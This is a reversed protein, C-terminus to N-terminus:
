NYLRGSMVEGLWEFGPYKEAPLLALSAPRKALSSGSNYRGGYLKIVAKALTQARLYAYVGSAQTVLCIKGTLRCRLHRRLMGSFRGRHSCQFNTRFRTLCEGDSIRVLVPLLLLLLMMM